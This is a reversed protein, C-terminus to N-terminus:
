DGRKIRAVCREYWRDLARHIPGFILKQTIWIWVALVMILFLLFVVSDFVIM